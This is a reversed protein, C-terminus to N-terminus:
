ILFIAQWSTSIRLNLQLICWYYVYQGWNWFGRALGNNWWARLCELAEITNDGLLSKEQAILKKVSGLDDGLLDPDIDM